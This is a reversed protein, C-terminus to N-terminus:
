LMRKIRLNSKALRSDVADSRESLREISKTQADLTHSMDQGMSKLQGVMRSLDDLDEDQTDEMKQLKGQWDESYQREAKPARAKGGVGSAAPAERSSGQRGQAARDLMSGEVISQAKSRVTSTSKSMYNRFSGWVSEMGRITRDAFNLHEEVKDIEGHMRKLQDTSMVHLILLSFCMNLLTLAHALAALRLHGAFPETGSQQDLTTLTEGAINRTEDVQRVMRRISESNQSGLVLVDQKKKEQRQVDEWNREDWSADGMGWNTRGAM